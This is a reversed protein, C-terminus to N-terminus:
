EQDKSVMLSRYVLGRDAYEQMFLLSVKNSNKWDNQLAFLKQNEQGIYKYCTHTNFSDFTISVLPAYSVGLREFERIYSMSMENAQKWRQELNRLKLELGAEYAARDLEQKTTM